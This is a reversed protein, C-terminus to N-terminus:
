SGGSTVDRYAARLVRVPLGVRAALVVAAIVVAPRAGSLRYGVERAAARRAAGGTAALIHVGAGVAEVAARWDRPGPRRAPAAIKRAAPWDSVTRM